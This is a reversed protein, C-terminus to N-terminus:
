KANAMADLRAVHREADAAYETQSYEEAIIKWADRADEFDGAAEHAGAAKQIAYPRTADNDRAKAGKEYYSAAKKYDGKESYCDGKLVLIMAAMVEDKFTVDNFYDLAKDFEKKSLLIRGAYFSAINGAKTSGYDDAIQTMGLFNGDGNLSLNLSDQRFYREAMYLQAYAEKEKAPKYYKFYYWVGAILLIAVIGAININKKNNEYFDKIDKVGKINELEDSM